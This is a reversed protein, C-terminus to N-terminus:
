QILGLCQKTLVDARQASVIDSDPLNIFLSSHEGERQGLTLVPMPGLNWGIDEVIAVPRERRQGLDNHPDALRDLAIM